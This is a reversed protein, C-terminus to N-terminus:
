QQYHASLNKKAGLVLYELDPMACVYIENRVESEPRQLASMIDPFTRPPTASRGHVTIFIIVKYIRTRFLVYVRGFCTFHPIVATIVVFPEVKFSNRRGERVAITRSCRLHVKHTKVRAVRRTTDRRLRGHPTQRQLRRMVKSTHARARNTADM